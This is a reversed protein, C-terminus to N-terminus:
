KVPKKAKVGGHKGGKSFGKQQLMAEIESDEELYRIRDEDISDVIKNRQNIIEMKKEILEEERHRESAGKKDDPKNILRRLQQDVTEQEVELEQERNIYIFDNETRVLENKENVLTFWSIMLEDDDDENANRITDELQRGKLELQTLRSDIAKLQRQIQATSIHQRGGSTLVKPPPPRTPHDRTSKPSTPLAPRPPKPPVSKDEIEKFTFKKPVTIKKKQPEDERTDNETFKSGNFPIKKREPSKDTKKVIDKTKDFQFGDDKTEKGKVFRDTIDVIKRPAPHPPSVPKTIAKTKNELNSSGNMVKGKEPDVYGGKRLEKRKEAEKQWDLVNSETKSKEHLLDASKPRAKEKKREELKRKWEPIDDDSTLTTNTVVSAEKVKSKPENQGHKTVKTVTTTVTKTVKTVKSSSEPKDNQFESTTQSVFSSKPRQPKTRPSPDIKQTVNVKDHSSGSKQEPKVPELVSVNKDDHVGVSSDPSGSENKNRVDALTKLLGGFVQKNKKEDQPRNPVVLVASHERLPGKTNSTVASHIELTNQSGSEKDKEVVASIRPPKSPPGHSKTGKKESDEGHYPDKKNRPSSLPSEGFNVKPQNSPQVSPPKSIPLRPPSSPPLPPPSSPSDLDVSKMVPRLNLSFESKPRQPPTKPKSFNNSRLGVPSKSRTESKKPSESATKKQFRAVPKPKFPLEAPTTDMKEQRSKNEEPKFIDSKIDSNFQSSVHKSEKKTKDDLASKSDQTAGINKRNREELEKFKDMVNVRNVKPTESKSEGSEFLSKVQGRDSGKELGKKLLPENKAGSKGSIESKDKVGAKVDQKDVEMKNACKEEKAKALNRRQWFDLPQDDKGQQGANIDVKRHKSEGTDSTDGPHRKFVKSTPSLDSNRFCTRHYLRGSDIHRELLYVKEKCLICKDGISDQRESVQNTGINTKAPTLSVKEKPTAPKKGGAVFKNVGPGGLQEKDHFYNYYQSVYTVVSLRDPVRIAVMDDAELFAPINLEKQAVEFALNNNEFVNEKSLSDYDILDPRFRHIIACFALGSKWSAAMNNVEVDRYGASMKACWLQLNKVKTMAM